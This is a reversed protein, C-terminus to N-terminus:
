RKAQQQRFNKMARDAERSAMHKKLDERKDFRKKGKGLALEVKVLGNKFYMRLPILALGGAEMQYQIKIIERKHLLLKRPRNQTHNNCTGFAYEDIHANYLFVEGKLVRAFSESIQAHGTRISKVETGKLEIGAEFREGIEYNHFAKGNRIEKYRNADTKKRASM